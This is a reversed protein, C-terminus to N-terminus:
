QRGGADYATSGREDHTLVRKEASALVLRRLRQAKSLQYDFEAARLEGIIRSTGAGTRVNALARWAAV